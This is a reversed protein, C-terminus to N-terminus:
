KALSESISKNSLFHYEFKNLRGTNNFGGAQSLASKAIAQFAPCPFSSSSDLALCCSSFVGSRSSSLIYFNGPLRLVCPPLYLLLSPSDKPEEYYSCCLHGAQLIGSDDLLTSELPPAGPFWPPISRPVFHLQGVREAWVFGECPSQHWLGKLRLTFSHDSSLGMWEWRILQSTFPPHAHPQTLMLGSLASAKLFSYCAASGDCQGEIGVEQLLLPFKM